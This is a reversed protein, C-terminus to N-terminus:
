QASKSSCIEDLTPWRQSQGIGPQSHSIPSPSPGRTSAPSPNKSLRASRWSKTGEDALRSSTGQSGPTRSSGVNRGMTREPTRNKSGHFATPFSTSHAKPLRPEPSRRPGTRFCSSGGPASSTILDIDRQMPHSRVVQMGAPLFVSPTTSLQRLRSLDIQEDLGPRLVGDHGAIWVPQDQPMGSPSSSAMALPISAGRVPAVKTSNPTRRGSDSGSIEMLGRSKQLEKILADVQALHLASRTDAESSLNDQRPWDYVNRSSTSGRSDRASADSPARSQRTSHFGSKRARTRDKDTSSGSYKTSGGGHPAGRSQGRGKSRRRCLEFDAAVEKAKGNRLRRGGKENPSPSSDPALAWNPKSPTHADKKIKATPSPACHRSVLHRDSVVVDSGTFYTSSKDKQPSLPLALINDAM